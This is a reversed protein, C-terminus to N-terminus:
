ASPGVLFHLGGPTRDVAMGSRSLVASLAESYTVAALAALEAGQDTLRGFVGRRDDPCLCRECLSRDELRGTLRSVSSHTLGVAEALDQMRLSREPAQALSALVHFESVRLRHRRDLAREVADTVRAHARHVAMWDATGPAWPPPTERAEETRGTAHTM